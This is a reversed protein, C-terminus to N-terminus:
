ELELDRALSPAINRARDAMARTLADAVDANELASNEDGDHYVFSVDGAARRGEFVEGHKPRQAFNASAWIAACHFRVRLHCNRKM